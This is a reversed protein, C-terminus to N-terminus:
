GPDGARRPHEPQTAQGDKQDELSLPREPPTDVGSVAANSTYATQEAVADLGNLRCGPPEMLRGRAKGASGGLLAPHPQGSRVSM